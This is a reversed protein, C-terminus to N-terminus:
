DRTIFEDLNLIARLTTAWSAHEVLDISPARKNAVLRKAADEHEAYFARSQELLQLLAAREDETPMRTTCRQFAREIRTADDGSSLLTERAFATAAESYVENNLLVLAGIPTNSRNRRVNTVNADPCDFTILTPHPATRKFYTYLGRRFRDEGSSTRWKFNNAYSVAAAEPPMPPFVSPGGIRSSLLNAVSLTIDRLAEAEMRFRNQRHLLRNNPDTERLEPRHDSSQRYTASIVIQRILAKRSWNLRIYESALFDLLRPHSPLEGRVGFDEPTTVLGAGFLRQWVQNAIVRPVLPNKGDVLWQALRLREHSETAAIQPLTSLTGPQVEDLPQKFEGRRLIRTTRRDKTRRSVVRVNFKPHKPASKELKEIEGALAELKEQEKSTVEEDGAECSKQLLTLENQKEQLTREHEKVKTEYQAVQEETPPLGHESEDANNFFAYLQYYEAQSIQDYKHNHCRACGVTLGLWVTGLTETRDMVAAVRWQEKDTGGETNTLTQRHFATALRENDGAKPLLDGALQQVTFEDFPLDTNIADIVWDRYKWANPRNRDKEYGDSDAYRAKDLWHRGWREGFRPSALLRDVLSEYANPSADNTFHEVEELTPPLGLLDYSLRRILKERSAEPSPAIQQAELRALVFIDIPSSIETSTETQRRLDPPPRRDLARYAWHTSWNAGKAVWAELVDIERKTLPEGEPPMRLDPDHSKVRLLLESEKPNGPVIARDGSDAPEFAAEEVDLRLGSESKDAGHCAFCHEALIPQVERSFDQGIAISVISAFLALHLLLTQNLTKTM